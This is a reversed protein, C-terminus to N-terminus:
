SLKGCKKECSVQEATAPSIGTLHVQQDPFEREGETSEKGYIETEIKLALKLSYEM